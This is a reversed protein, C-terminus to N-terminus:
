NEDFAQWIKYLTMQEIKRGGISIHGSTIDNDILIEDDRYDVHGDLYAVNVGTVHRRLVVAPYHLNDAMFARVGQAQVEGSSFPWLKPRLCYSSWSWRQSTHPGKIGEQMWHEWLTQPNANSGGSHFWSGDGEGREHWWEYGSDEVMPCVYVGPDKVYREFILCGLASDWELGFTQHYRAITCNYSVPFWSSWTDTNLRYQSYHWIPAFQGQRGSAVYSMYASALGSLKAACRARNAQERVVKGLPMFMAVLMAIITIVILLEILTFARRPRNM